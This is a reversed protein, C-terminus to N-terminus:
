KKRILRYIRFLVPRILLKLALNFLFSVIPIHSTGTEKLYEQYHGPLNREKAGRTLISLYRQSTKKDTVLNQTAYLTFARIRQGDIAVVEVEHKGYDKGETSIIKHWESRELKYVVGWVSDNESPSINAFVPEFLPLGPTNFVLRYQHLVAISSSMTNVKRYSNIVKSSMNAGFAFYYMVSEKEKLDDGRYLHDLM